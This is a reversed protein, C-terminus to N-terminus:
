RRWIITLAIGIGIIWEAKKWTLGKKNSLWWALQFVLITWITNIGVGVFDPYMFTISMLGYCGSTVIRQLLNHNEGYPMRLALHYGLAIIIYRWWDLQYTFVTMLVIALPVGIRRWGKQKWGGLAFLFGALSVFVIKGMVILMELESM